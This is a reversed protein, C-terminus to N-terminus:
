RSLSLFLLSFLFSSSSSSALRQVQLVMLELPERLCTSLRNFPLSLLSSSTPFLHNTASSTILQAFVFHFFHSLNELKENNELQQKKRQESSWSVPFGSFHDLNVLAMIWTFFVMTVPQPILLRLHLSTNLGLPHLTSRFQLSTLYFSFLFFLFTIRILDWM